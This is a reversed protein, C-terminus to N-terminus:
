NSVERRWLLAFNELLLSRDTNRAMETEFNLSFDSCDELAQTSMRHVLGGLKPWLRGRPQAGGRARWGDRFVGQLLAAAVAQSSREKLAEKLNSIEPAPFSSAAAVLFNEVASEIEQYQEQNEMLQRAQAVSGMAADVIWDDVEGVVLKLQQSTLAKFRIMQGRSRITPLLAGPLPTLLIFYTGPPPEEFSKLLANAAQPNLAHAQDILIVRSRGLRRLAIFQLVERVQEIKITQGDPALRCLSESQCRAMRLCSGCVGCAQGIRGAAEAHAPSQGISECILEQALALAAMSKGIGPPGAFILSQSLKAEHSAHFLPALIERHGIITDIVRAM